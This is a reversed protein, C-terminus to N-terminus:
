GPCSSRAWTGLNVAATRASAQEPAALEEGRALADVARRAVAVDGAIESPARTAFDALFQADAGSGGSVAGGLARPLTGSLELLRLCDDSAILGAV